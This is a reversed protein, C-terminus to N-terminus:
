LLTGGRKGSEPDAGAKVSELYELVVHVTARIFNITM